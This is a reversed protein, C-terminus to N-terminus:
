RDSSTIGLTAALHAGCPHAGEVVGTISAASAPLVNLGHTRMVRRAPPHSLLRFLRKKRYRVISCRRMPPLTDDPLM